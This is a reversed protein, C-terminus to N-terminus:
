YINFNTPDFSDFLDQENEGFACIYPAGIYANPAQIDPSHYKIKFGNITYTSTTSQLPTAVDVINWTDIGSVFGSPGRKNDSSDWPQYIKVTCETNKFIFKNNINNPNEVWPQYGDGDEYLNLLETTLHGADLPSQQSYDHGSLFWFGYHIRVKSPDFKFCFYNTDKIDSDGVFAVDCLGEDYNGVSSMSGISVNKGGIPHNIVHLDGFPGLENHTNIESTPSWKKYTAWSDDRNNPVLVTANRLLNYIPLTYIPHGTLSTYKSYINKTITGSQKLLSEAGTLWKNDSLSM